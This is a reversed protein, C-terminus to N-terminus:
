VPPLLDHLIKFTELAMGSIQRRHSTPMKPKELLEDYSSTYDCYVYRLAREQIKEIKKTNAVSCFHWSLPCFNFNSLIFTHFITLKSLKCLNRGIRKLINLQQVAIKCISKIHSAFNLMFDIDVGLLKVTEDCTINIDGINFSPSNQATKKGVAFAQFKEPNAQM